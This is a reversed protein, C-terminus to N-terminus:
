GESEAKFRETAGKILNRPEDQPRLRGTLYLMYLERAIKHEETYLYAQEIGYKLTNIAKSRGKKGSAVAKMIFFLAHAFSDAGSSDDSFAPDLIFAWTEDDVLLNKCDCEASDRRRM